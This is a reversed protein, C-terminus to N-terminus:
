KHKGLKIIMMQGSLIETMEKLYLTSEDIVAVVKKKDYTTYSGRKEKLSIFLNAICVILWLPLLLLNAIINLVQNLLTMKALLSIHEKAMKAFSFKETPLALVVMGDDKIIKSVKTLITAPHPLAFLTNISYVIDVSSEGIFDLKNISKRMFRLNPRQWLLQKLHCIAIMTWTFDIGVMNSVENNRSLSFLMTGTGCGLDLVNDYKKHGIVRIVSERIKKHPLSASLADYGLAYFEWLITNM